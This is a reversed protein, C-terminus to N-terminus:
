DQTKGVADGMEGRKGTGFVAGLGPTVQHPTCLAGLWLEGAAWSWHGGQYLGKGCCFSSTSANPVPCTEQARHFGERLRGTNFSLHLLTPTVGGLARHVCWGQM